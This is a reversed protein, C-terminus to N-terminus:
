RQVGQHEILARCWSQAVASVQVLETFLRDPDVEALAEFVEELLIDKWTGPELSRTRSFRDDTNRTFIVALSHAEYEELGLEGGTTALPHEGGGTGNPHNQEGWKKDQRAREDLVLRSIHADLSTITM